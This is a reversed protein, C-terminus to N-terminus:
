FLSHKLDRRGRQGAGRAQQVPDQILWALFTKWADQSDNIKGPIRVRDGSDEGGM